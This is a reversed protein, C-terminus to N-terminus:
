KLFFKNIMQSIFEHDPFIREIHINDIDNGTRVVFDAYASSTVYMEVQVQAFYEHNRKLIVVDDSISLCSSKLNVYESISLHRASYPNKM